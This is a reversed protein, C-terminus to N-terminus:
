KSKGAGLGTAYFTDPVGNRGDGWTALVRNGGFTAGIYDGFNPRINSATTCWNTTSTTMKIPTGFAGGGNLSQAWFTDVLSNATGRRRIGGGVSVTCFPNSTVATEQSEYYVVDVTGGPEVNVVPWWRKVGTSGSALL